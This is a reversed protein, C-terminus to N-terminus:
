QTRQSRRQEHRQYLAAKAQVARLLLDSRGLRCLDRYHMWFRARDSDDIGSVGFTSFLLQGLDKIRWHLATWRHRALRHLDILTLQAIGAPTPDDSVFVHCLYMDKHYLGAIHLRAVTHALAIATERKWAAFEAPALREAMRPVVLNLEDLGVLEEIMLFSQLEIGPRLREGCAVPRPVRVGLARATNLNTWEIAGPTAPRRTGFLARLRALWGVRTHRKLYVSVSAHPGDIRVRSTSRGQKAHYRDNSQTTMAFEFLDPPLTPAHAESQWCWEFGSRLRTWFTGRPNQPSVPDFRKATNREGNM